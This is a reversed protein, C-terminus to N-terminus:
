FNNDLYAKSSQCNVISSLRELYPIIFMPPQECPNKIISFQYIRQTPHGKLIQYIQQLLLDRVVYKLPTRRRRTFTFTHSSRTNRESHLLGFCGPENQSKLRGSAEYPRAPKGTARSCLYTILQKFLTRLNIMSWKHSQKLVHRVRLSNM